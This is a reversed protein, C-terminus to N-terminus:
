HAALGSGGVPLLGMLAQRLWGVRSAFRALWSRLSVRAPVAVLAEFGGARWWCVWRRITQESVRVTGGGPVMHERAALERVKQGRQRAPLRPGIVEQILAYQFLAAQRAREARSRAEEDAQIM